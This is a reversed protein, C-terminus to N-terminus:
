FSPNFEKLFQTFLEFLIFDIKKNEMVFERRIFKLADFPELPSKYSRGPDTVADYVDVIELLKVPLYALSNFKNLDELEYSICTDHHHDRKGCMLGCLERYYGYGSNHGYYEHHYGAIAAIEESYVTKQLLMRYGTKAHSEIKRRDFGDDGEYYDLYRQKGIDHLLFGASYIKIDEKAVPRMGGKFVDSLSLDDIHINPIIDSYWSRYTTNFEYSIRAALKNDTLERNFFALFQNTMIFTRVMHRVTVGNSKQLLSFFCSDSFINKSLVSTLSSVIRNTLRALDYTAKQAEPDALKAVEDITVKNVLFSYSSVEILIDVKERTSFDRSHTVSDIRNLAESLALIRETQNKNALTKYESLLHNDILPINEKNSLQNEIVLDTEKIKGLIKLILSSSVYYIWCSSDKVWFYKDKDYLKRISIIVERNSLKNLCIISCDNNLLEPFVREDLKRIKKLSIMNECM